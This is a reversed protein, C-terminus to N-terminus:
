VYINVSGYTYAPKHSLTAHENYAYSPNALLVWGATPRQFFRACATGNMAQTDTENSKPIHEIRIWDPPTRGTGVENLFHRKKQIAKQSSAGRLAVTRQLNTGGPFPDFFLAMKQFRNLGSLLYWNLIQKGYISNCRYTWAHRIEANGQRGRIRWRPGSSPRPTIASVPFHLHLQLREHTSTTSTKM